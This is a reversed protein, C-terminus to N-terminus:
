ASAAAAGAGRRRRAGSRSAAAAAGEQGAPFAQPGPAAGDGCRSWSSSAPRPPLLFDGGGKVSPLASPEGEQARLFCVVSESEVELVCLIGGRRRRVTKPADRGELGM